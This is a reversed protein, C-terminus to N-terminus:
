SAKPAARNKQCCPCIHTGRQGVVLREIRTECRPCPDGTRRFVRLADQNRGRRGATSYFNTSASGLTTGQNQIGRRLVTQVAHYLREIEAATLTDSRRCPHLRAEWLAEDAYINGLGAVFSQDLLLPKLQRRHARFRGAFVRATLARSLPEPGLAGLINEPTDTLIWRGFKRPDVYHVSVGNDLSLVIHEHPGRRQFERGLDFRGTMRLHVLLTGGDALEFVLFKARRTVRRIVAGTLRAAFAAPSLGKLTKPWGVLVGTIQRGELGVRRLDRTLTEVEPLEPM